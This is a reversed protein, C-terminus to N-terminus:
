IRHHAFVYVDIIIHDKWDDVQADLILSIRTPTDMNEADATPASTAIRNRDWERSWKWNLLQAKELAM